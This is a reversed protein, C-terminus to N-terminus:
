PRKKRKPPLPLRWDSKGGTKSVLHVPGIVMGKDVAKAMDYLTLAAVSAAVLAEMEVGTREEVRARADIVVGDRRTKFLVEVSSLPLSHCLPILEDTRKAALIGALRAAAFADGKPLGGAALLKVTGPAMRVEARAAAERATVPKGGVDVMRAEGRANLHSLRRTV